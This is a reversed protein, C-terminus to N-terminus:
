IVVLRDDSLAQMVSLLGGAVIRPDLDDMVLHHAAAATQCVILRAGADLLEDLLAHIQPAGLLTPILQDHKTSAQKLLAVAPGTVFITARGGLALQVLALEFVLRNPTTPDGFQQWLITLGTVADRMSAKTVADRTSAETVKDRMSM